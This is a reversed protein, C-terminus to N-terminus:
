SCRRPADAQEQAEERGCADPFVAQDVLDLNMFAGIHVGGLPEPQSNGSRIGRLEPARGEFPVAGRRGALVYAGTIVAAQAHFDPAAGAQVPLDFAPGRRGHTGRVSGSRTAL